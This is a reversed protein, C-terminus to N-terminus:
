TSWAGDHHTGCWPPSRTWGQGARLPPARGVCARGDPGRGVWGCRRARATQAQRIFWPTGCTVITRAASTPREYSRRCRPGRRHHHQPRPVARGVATRPRLDPRGRIDHRRHRGRRGVGAPEAPQAAPPQLRRGAPGCRGASGRWDDMPRRVRQRDRLVHDHPVPAAVTAPPGSPTGPGAITPDADPHPPSLNGRVLWGRGQLRRFLGNSLREPGTAPESGDPHDPPPPHSPIPSLRVAHGLPVRPGRRVSWSM